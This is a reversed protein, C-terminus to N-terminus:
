DACQLGYVVRGGSSGVVVDGEDHQAASLPAFTFDFRGADIRRITKTAVGGSVVTLRPLVGVLDVPASLDEIHDSPLERARYQRLVALADPRAYLEWLDENTQYVTESEARAGIVVHDACLVRPATFTPLLGERANFRSGVGRELSVREALAIDGFPNVRLLVGYCGTVWAVGYGADVGRFYDTAPDDRFRPILPSRPSCNAVSSAPLFEESPTHPDDWDIGAEDLSDGRLRFLRPGQAAIILHGPAAEAVDILAARPALMDLPISRSELQASVRRLWPARGAHGILVFDSTLSDFAAATVEDAADWGEIQARSVIPIGDTRDITAVSGGTGFAWFRDGRRIIATLAGSGGQGYVRQLSAPADGRRPGTWLTGDDLRAVFWRPHLARLGEIARPAGVRSSLEFIPAGVLAGNTGVEVGRDDGLSLLASRDGMVFEGCTTNGGADHALVWSSAGVTATFVLRRGDTARACAFARGALIAAADVRDVSADIPMWASWGTPDGMAVAGDSAVALRATAAQVFDVLDAGPRVALNGTVDACTLNRDDVRCELTRPQRAGAALVSGAVLVTTDVSRLGRVTLGSQLPHGSLVALDDSVLHLSEGLAVVFGDGVGVAADATQARLDVSPLQCTRNVAANRVDAGADVAVAIGSGFLAVVGDDNQAFVSIAGLREPDITLYQSPTRDILPEEVFAPASCTCPGPWNVRILARARDIVEPTVRGRPWVAADAFPPPACRDGPHVIQPARQADVLCRGCSDPPLADTSLTVTPMRDDALVAGTADVLDSTRVVWSYLVEDDALILPATRGGGARFTAIKSVDGATGGVAVIVLDGPDAAIGIPPHSTQCATLAVAISVAWRRVSGVKDSAPGVRM